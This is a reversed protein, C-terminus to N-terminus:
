KNENGIYELYNEVRVYRLHNFKIKEVSDKWWPKNQIQIIINDDFRKRIVKAPVGVAISYPPIDKTVISGAGIIAGNGITIGPMIKVDEGIWVDSGINVKIENKNCFEEDTYIDLGVLKMKAHKGRHFAPHTSLFDSIPHDNKLIKIGNAISCFSGIKCYNFVCDNGIYTGIGISANNITTKKGIINRGSFYVDNGVFSYISIYIKRRQLKIKKILNKCLYLPSM